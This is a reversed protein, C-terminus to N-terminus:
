NFRRIPNLLGGGGAGIASDPRAEPSPCPCAGGAWGTGGREVRMARNESISGRGGGRGRLLRQCLHAPLHCKERFRPPRNFRWNPPKHGCKVRLNTILIYLLSTPPPHHSPPLNTEREQPQQPCYGNSPIKAASQSCNSASPKPALKPAESLHQLDAHFRMFDRDIVLFGGGGGEEVEESWQLIFCCCCCDFWTPAPTAGNSEVRGRSISAAAAPFQGFITLFDM